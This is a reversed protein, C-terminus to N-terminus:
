FSDYRDELLQIAADYNAETTTLNSLVRKAEGKLAGKLYYLKQVKPLSQQEHVTGKFM